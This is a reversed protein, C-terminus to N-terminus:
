PSVKRELEVTIQALGRVQCALLSLGLSLCTPSTLLSAPPIIQRRPGM